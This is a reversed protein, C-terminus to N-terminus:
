WHPPKQTPASVSAESEFEVIRNSLAEVRRRLDAIIRGQEIVVGNLDDLMQAQHAALIELDDLRTTEPREMM